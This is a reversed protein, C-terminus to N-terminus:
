SVFRQYKQSQPLNDLKLHEGSLANAMQKMNMVLKRALEPKAFQFRSEDWGAEHLIGDMVLDFHAPILLEEFTLTANEQLERVAVNESESGSEKEVAPMASFDQKAVNESESGSEKEVPPIASFDQKLQSIRQYKARFKLLLEGAPEVPPTLFAKGQKCIAPSLDETDSSSSSESLDPCFDPDEDSDDHMDEDSDDAPNTVVLMPSKDLQCKLTPSANFFADINTLSDDPTAPPTQLLSPLLAGNESGCEKEVPPPASFDQKAVNESGSEKEVPPPASFDQKAVNESESGSEKEVAPMASFDQKLVEVSERAIRSIKGDEWKVKLFKKKWGSVIEGECYEKGFERAWEEGFFESKTKVRMPRSMSKRPLRMM